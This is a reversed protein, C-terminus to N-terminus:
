MGVGYKKLKEKAKTTYDDFSLNEKIIKQWKEKASDVNGMSEELVSDEYISKMESRLSSLMRARLSKAAENGPDEELAKDCAIYAEKFRSKEGLNKCQELHAGVKVKIQLKIAAIDRKALEQNSASNPYGGELFKEYEKLAKILHGSQFLSQAKAFQKQGQSVRKAVARRQDEERQRSVERQQVADLAATILPHEPNLEIAETLCVRTEEITASRPLKANCAEVIDRINQEVLAREREKREQDKARIVLERGQECYQQLEKSNEYMPILSHLKLLETICLEYKGQVYLNRALNFSDKISNKQENTMQEFSAPADASINNIKRDPTEKPKDTLSYVVAMTLVGALLVRAKHYKWNFHKKWGTISPESEVYDGEPYPGSMPVPWAMPPPAIYPDVLAPLNRMRNMFQTDRVEFQVTINAVSISDGSELRTPEHPPLRDGNLKTGNASGLDTVFFGENTRVIEFHKRSAHPTELTIETSSDRGAVWLHGELRLTEEDSSQGSTIRLFPALNSPAGVVTAENNLKPSTESDEFSPTLANLRPAAIPLSAPNSPSATDSPPSSNSTSSESPSAAPPDAEFSFEFPTLVFKTSEKLEFFDAIQDGKQLPIFASLTEVVWHDDKFYFKLHQRSLGKQTPLPIHAETSRGAVYEITPDLEYSGIESGHLRVILRAM